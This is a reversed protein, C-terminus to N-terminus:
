RGVTAPLRTPGRLTMSRKWVTADHDIELTELVPSLAALVVRGEMRALAAGVCHHIGHGFSLPRPDPRNLLLRNPRDYRAPDRNAAGLLIAMTQGKRVECGGVRMDRVAIRDTNQVPSDFRLLEEVANPVVDPSQALLRRQDAHQSLAVVANGLFGSTTEHGAVMLLTVMSHLETRSLRDGADEAQILATLLDDGPHATRHDVWTDIASRVADITSSMTAPDFSEVPDIFKAIEDSWQKLHPWDSDPIGLLEGIVYIPLPAFLDTALDGGGAAVFDAVMSAAMTAVRPEIRAVARPTFARSVLSRMRTHAPPDSLLISKTFVTRRDDTLQSWPRVVDMLARRDVTVDPSRLVEEALAASTVMWANMGRHHWIPGLHRVAEYTPYPDRSYRPSFLNLPRLAGDLVRQGLPSAAARRLAPLVVQEVRM